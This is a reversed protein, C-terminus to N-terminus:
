AAMEKTWASSRKEAGTGHLQAAALRGVRDVVRDTTANANAGADVVTAAPLDCLQVRLVGYSDQRSRRGGTDGLKVAICAVHGKRHMLRFELRRRAREALAVLADPGGTQFRINM